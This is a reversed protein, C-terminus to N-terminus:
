PKFSHTRMPVRLPVERLPVPISATISGSGGELPTGPNKPREIPLPEAVVQVYSTRSLYKQAMRKIDEGTIKQIHDLYEVAFSYDGIMDYFGLAGAQGSVTDSQDVYQRMLMKKARALDAQTLGDRQVKDIEDLLLGIADGAKADPNVVLTVTLLGPDRQTLYDVDFGLAPAIKDTADDKAAPKEDDDNPAGLLVGRLQAAEGDKWHSLLIDAAVVEDPNAIGPSRFGLTVIKTRTAFRRSLTKFTPPANESAISTKDTTKADPKGAADAFFQAILKNAVDSKADGVVVVSINPGVFYLQHFARAVKSTITEISHSTGGAPKRYPHKDFALRYAIDLSADLADSERRHQEAAVDLRAEAITENSLDPRLVADSLARLAQPLYQSAITVSLFTADRSTFTKVDGGITELSERAGGRLTGSAEVRRPYNQSGNLGVEALLRSVGSNNDSEYRAGAKIWVQVCVLGSGNSTRVIGRVGSPLAKVSLAKADFLPAPKFAARDPAAARSVTATGALLFLSYVFLFGASFPRM